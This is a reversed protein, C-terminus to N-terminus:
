HDKTFAEKGLKEVEDLERLLAEGDEGQTYILRRLAKYFPLYPNTTLNTGSFVPMTLNSAKVLIFEHTKGVYGYNRGITGVGSGDGDDHDDGGGNNRDGNGGPMAIQYIGHENGNADGYDSSSDTMPSRNQRNIIGAVISCNNNTKIRRAIDFDVSKHITVQQPTQPTAIDTRVPTPQDKIHQLEEITKQMRRMETELQLIKADKTRNQLEVPDKNTTRLWDDPTPDAEQVRLQQKGLGKSALVGQCLLDENRQEIMAKSLEDRDDSDEDTLQPPVTNEATPRIGLAVKQFKRENEDLVPVLPLGANIQQVQLAVQGSAAAPQQHQQQEQQEPTLPM